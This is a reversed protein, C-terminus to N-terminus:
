KLRRGWGNPNAVVKMKKLPKHFTRKLPSKAHWQHLPQVESFKLRRIKLGDKKARRVMDNDMEGLGKAYREDYGHVKFWWDRATCQITGPGAGWGSASSHWRTATEALKQFNDDSFPDSLDANEPLRRPEACMLVSSKMRQKLFYVLRKGFMFDIDTTAVFDAGPDTAKIGVNLAWGKYFHQRPIQILKCCDFGAVRERVGTAVSADNSTDVLVVEIPSDTQYNLLSHLCNTVRQGGRNWTMVVFSFTSESM